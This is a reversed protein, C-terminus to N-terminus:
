SCLRSGIKRFRAGIILAIEAVPLYPVAPFSNDGPIVQPCQREWFTITSEGAAYEGFGPYHRWAIDAVM